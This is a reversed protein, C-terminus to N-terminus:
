PDDIVIMITTKHYQVSDNRHYIVITVHKYYLGSPGIRYFKKFATIWIKKYYAPDNKGPVGKWGLRINTPLVGITSCREPAESPYARATGM